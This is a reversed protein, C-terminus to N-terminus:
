QAPLPRLMRAPVVGHKGNALSVDYALVPGQPGNASKIANVRARVWDSGYKAEIVQGVSFQAALGEAPLGAPNAPHAARASPPSVPTAAAGPRAPHVPGPCLVEWNQALALGNEANSRGVIKGQGDRFKARGAGIDGVWVGALTYPKGDVAIMRGAPCDASARYSRRAEDSAMQERVCSKPNDSPAWQRCWNTAEAATIRGEAVANATGLGSTSIVTPSLCQSCLSLWDSAVATAAGASVMGAVGAAIWLKKLSM